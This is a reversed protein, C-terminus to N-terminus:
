LFTQHHCTALEFPLACLEKLPFQSDESIVLYIDRRVPLWPLHAILRYACLGRPGITKRCSM